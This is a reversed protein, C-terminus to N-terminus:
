KEAEVLNPEIPISSGADKRRDVIKEEKLLKGVGHRRRLEEPTLFRVRDPRLEMAQAFSECIERALRREDMEPEPCIWLVLEDLDLPDDNAKRLELQWVIGPLSLGRPFRYRALLSTRLRM